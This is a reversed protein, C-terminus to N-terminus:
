PRDSSARKKRSRRKTDVAYDAEGQEIGLRAKGFAWKPIQPSESNLRNRRDNLENIKKALVKAGLVSVDVDRFIRSDNRLATYKNGARQHQAARGNPDLFASVASVGAVILSLVGAVVENNDFKSFASAGAIAALLASTGGMWMNVNAWIQGAYFHSKASYLSDEEIRKSEKKLISKNVTM